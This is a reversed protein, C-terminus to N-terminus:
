RTRKQSSFLGTPHAQVADLRRSGALVGALRTNADIDLVDIKDMFPEFDAILDAAGRRSEKVLNFDFTDLESGGFLTDRHLGGILRDAGAGGQLSDFGRGGELIDEGLGGNLVDSGGLGRLQDSGGLGSLVDNGSTGTLIDSLPTGVKRAM